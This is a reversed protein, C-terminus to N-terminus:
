ETENYFGKLKRGTSSISDFWGIEDVICNHNFSANASAKERNYSSAGVSAANPSTNGRISIFVAAIFFLVVFATIVNSFIGGGSGNTHVHRVTRTHGGHYRPPRPPPTSGHHRNSSYTRNSSSSSYSRSRSSGVGARSRSSSRHGSGSRSSFRHGGSSRHGGGGSGARAM